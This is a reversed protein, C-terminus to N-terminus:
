ARVEPPTWEVIANGTGIVSGYGYIVGPYSPVGLASLLWTFSGERCESVSQSIFDPMEALIQDAAGAEIMGMIRDDWARQNTNYISEYRPDEPDDPEETFHRHSLSTSALLVARRGTKEIAVRTAEGLAMMEADGYENSYYSYPSASSICVIPVDWSPYSLHCSTITGYDVRFDPNRMMTTKLGLEGAEGAIAESLEVDVSLDYNFRFLNPFIPDVSLDKFRPVGLLHHGVVTKWHPTHVVLVDFDKARLSARLAEYGTLLSAWAGSGTAEPENQEPNTAYVLHPPHPSLCGAVITGTSM